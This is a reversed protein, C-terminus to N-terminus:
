KTHNDFYENLYDITGIPPIQKLSKIMSDMRVMYSLCITPKNDNNEFEIVYYQVDNYDSHFGNLSKIYFLQENIKM